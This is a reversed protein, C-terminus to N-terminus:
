TKDDNGDDIKIIVKTVDDDQDDIDDTDEVIDNDEDDLDTDDLDDDVEVEVEVEVEVGDEDNVVKTPTLAKARAAASSVKSTTHSSPARPRPATWPSNCKPCIIDAKNLDYFHAGCSSCARKTGLTENAVCIGGFIAYRRVAGLVLPLWNGRDPSSTLVLILM